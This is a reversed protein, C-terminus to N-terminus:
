FNIRRSLQEFRPDSHLNGVEPDLKLFVM